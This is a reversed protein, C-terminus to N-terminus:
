PRLSWTMTMSGGATRVYVSDAAVFGVKEYARIAAHNERSVGLVIQSIDRHDRLWGASATLVEATVGKGRYDADGVMVGMVAYGREVDVPEYKINGIHERTAKAFVGLFLVDERGARDRVYTRLDSLDRTHAAATIYKATAADDFWSLYRTTVDEVRLERLEFRETSIEVGM